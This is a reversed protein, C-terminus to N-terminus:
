HNKKRVNRIILLLLLILLAAFCAAIAINRYLYLERLIEDLSGGATGDNLLDIVGAMEFGTQNTYSLPVTMVAQHSSMQVQHSSSVIESAPLTLTIDGAGAEMADELRQQLAPSLEEANSLEIIKPIDAAASFIYRNQREHREYAMDVETFLTIDENTLMTELSKYAQEFSHNEVRRVMILSYPESDLHFSVLFGLREHYYSGIEILANRLAIQYRPEMDEADVSITYSLYSTFNEDIGLDIDIQICGSILVPLLIVSLVIYIINKNM